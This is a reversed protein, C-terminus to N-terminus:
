QLSQYLEQFGPDGTLQALSGAIQLADEHRGTNELATIYVLWLTQNYPLKPLATEVFTIAAAPDNRLLLRAQNEYALYYEGNDIAKQYAQRAEETAAQQELLAGYNNWNTWWYPAIEVSHQFAALAEQTRGARYLAVGYNNTLDFADPNAVIDHSYLTLSDRWTHVRFWSRLGLGVLVTLGLCTLVLRWTTRRLWPELYPRLLTGLLGLLGLMPFTFWRDAVTMDLPFIQLHLGLGIILWILFFNVPPERYRHSVIWWGVFSSGLLTFFLLPWWFDSWTATQVFWHQSILLNRPYWFTAFYFWMIKPINLLRGALDAQTIPSLGHAQLTLGAYAFRLWAYFLGVVFSVLGGLLLQLHQRETQTISEGSPEQPPWLVAAVWALIVFLGGTEKSLLALLLCSGLAPYRWWRHPTKFVLVLAILGWTVSLVDQLSAIYAATEVNLPHLLFVAALWWSWWRRQPSPKLWTLSFVANLLVWFLVANMIHLTVQFAHFWSAQGGSWTYLGAYTITMLPKYYLGGSRVSGGANFTSSRLLTPWDRLSHVAENLVIQEEDDWVFDNKLVPFYTLWGLVILVVVPLWRRFTASTRLTRFM